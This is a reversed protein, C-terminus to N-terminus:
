NIIEKRGEEKGNVEDSDLHSIHSYICTNDVVCIM